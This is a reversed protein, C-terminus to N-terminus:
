GSYTWKCNCKMCQAFTTSSEDCGRTQKSYSFVRKSNCKKCQFVGEEVEFPKQIYMRMEEVDNVEEELHHHNWGVKGQQIQSEVFELPLGKALDRVIQQSAFIYDKFDLTLTETVLRHLANEVRLGSVKDDFFALLRGSFDHRAEIKILNPTPGFVGWERNDVKFKQLLSCM